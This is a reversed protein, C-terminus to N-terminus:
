IVTGSQPDIGIGQCLEALHDLVILLAGPDLFDDEESDGTLREFHYIDYRADCEAVRDLKQREEETLELAELEGTLELIHARVDEDAVYSIDMAAFDDPSYLTMSELSGDQSVQLQSVEYRDGLRAIADAFDQAAPRHEQKLLVFFTERWRYNGNEFLSM